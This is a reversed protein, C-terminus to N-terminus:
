EHGSCIAVTDEDEFWLICTGTPGCTPYHCSGFADLAWGGEGDTGVSLNCCVPSFGGACSCRDYSYGELEYTTVTCGAGCPNVCVVATPPTGVGITACVTGPNQVSASTMLSLALLGSTLFANM